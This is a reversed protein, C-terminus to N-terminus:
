FKEFHEKTTKCAPCEETKDSTMIYGCGPCVFYSTKPLKLARDQAEKLLEVHRIDAEMARRFQEAGELFQEAEATRILNPYMTGSEIQESSMGMKLTQEVTGVTFAEKAPEIPEVALTQLLEAHMKAHIEESRAIARFMAGITKMKQNDANEAFAAYMWQRNLSKGYATQLNEVSVTPKPTDPETKKEGCGVFFLAIITLAVCFPMSVWLLFELGCVKCHTQMIRRRGEQHFLVTKDQPFIFCVVTLALIMGAGCTNFPPSDTSTVRRSNEAILLALPSKKLFSLRRAVNIRHSSEPINHETKRLPIPSQRGWLESM